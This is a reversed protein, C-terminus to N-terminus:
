AHGIFNLMSFLLESAYFILENLFYSSLGLFSFFEKNCEFNFVVLCSYGLRILLSYVNSLHEPHSSM